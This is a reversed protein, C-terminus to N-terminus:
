RSGQATRLAVYQIRDHWASLFAQRPQDITLSKAIRPDRFRKATDVPGIENGHLVAEARVTIAGDADGVLLRRALRREDGAHDVDGLDIWAIPDELNPGAVAELGRQQAANCPVDDRDLQVRAQRPNCFLVELSGPDIVNRDDNPVAPRSM